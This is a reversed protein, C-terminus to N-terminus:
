VMFMSTQLLWNARFFRMLNWYGGGFFRYEQILKFKEQMSRVDEFWIVHERENEDMYEIYPAMSVPDYSVEAHYRLATAIAREYGITVARSVGRVFPLTWDYGYNPLGMYIKDRSIRSVAYDLVKRVSPIPAVAMPPGYAYGWEYTMLFVFDCANAIEKYDIGEYLLGPQDDAIKPPLAVSVTYGYTSMVQHVSRIFAVYAEKDEPLIYEFDIDIGRYGKEQMIVLLKTIVNQQMTEDVMLQHVIENSFVGEENLSTLVLVPAVFFRAAAEILFEDSLLVLGGQATMGYSFCYLHDLYPLSALLIDEEIFPYAYGFFQQKTKEVTENTESFNQMEERVQVWLAQGIVLPYPYAIQNDFALDYPSIGYLLAISDITEGPQVVHIM